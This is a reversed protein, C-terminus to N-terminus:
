RRTITASQHLNQHTFWAPREWPPLAKWGENLVRVDKETVLYQDPHKPDKVALWKGDRQMNVWHGDIEAQVWGGKGRLMFAIDNHFDKAKNGNDLRYEKGKFYNSYAQGLAIHCTGNIKEVVNPNASHETIHPNTGFGVEGVHRRGAWTVHNKHNPDLAFIDRLNSNGREHDPKGNVMQAGEISKMEGARFIIKLDKFLKGDIVFTGKAVLTGEVGKRDPVTFLESGPVNYGLTDSVGDYDRINLTLNTGDSNTIHLRSARTLLAALKEQGHEIATWPQDCSEFYHQVQAQHRANLDGNGPSLDLNSPLSVMTWPMHKEHRGDLRRDLYESFVERTITEHTENINVRDLPPRKAKEQRSSNSLILASMDATDFIKRYYAARRHMNDEELSCEKSYVYDGGVARVLIDFPIDHRLCHRVVWKATDAVPPSLDLLWNPPNRRSEPLLNRQKDLEEIMAKALNREHKALDFSVPHPLKITSVWRTLLGQKPAELGREIIDGGEGLIPASAYDEWAKPDNELGLAFLCIVWQTRHMLSLLDKIETASESDIISQIDNSKKEWEKWKKKIKRVEAKAHQTGSETVFEAIDGLKQQVLRSLVNSSISSAQECGGEDQSM